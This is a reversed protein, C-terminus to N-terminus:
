PSHHAPMTLDVAPVPESLVSKTETMIKHQEWLSSNLRYGLKIISSSNGFELHKYSNNKEEKPFKLYICVHMFNNISYSNSVTHNTDKITCQEFFLFCFLVFFGLSRLHTHRWQCCVQLGKPYPVRQRINFALNNRSIRTTLLKLKLKKKKKKLNKKTHALKIVRFLASQKSIYSGKKDRGWWKERRGVSEKEINM